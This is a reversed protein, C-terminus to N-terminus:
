IKSLYDTLLSPPRPIANRTVDKKRHFSVGAFAPLAAHFVDDPFSLCSGNQLTNTNSPKNSAGSMQTSLGYMGFRM